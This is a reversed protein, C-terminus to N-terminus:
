KGRGFTECSKSLGTRVSSGIMFSVLNDSRIRIGPPFIQNITKNYGIQEREYIDAEIETDSGCEQTNIHTPTPVVTKNTTM